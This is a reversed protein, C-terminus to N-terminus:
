EFGLVAATLGILRYVIISLILLPLMLSNGNELEAAKLGILVIGVVTIALLVLLGAGKAKLSLGEKKLNIEVDLKQDEMSNDKGELGIIVEDVVVSKHLDIIIATHCVTKTQVTAM